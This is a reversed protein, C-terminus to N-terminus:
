APNMASSPTDSSTVSPVTWAIMPGFPAPFVVKKLTRDPKAGAVRPLTRNAPVSIECRSGAPMARM